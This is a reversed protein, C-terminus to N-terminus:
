IAAKLELLECGFVQELDVSELTLDDARPM